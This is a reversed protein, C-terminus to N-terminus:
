RRAGLRCHPCSACGAPNGVDADFHRCQMGIRVIARAAAADRKRRPGRGPDGRGCCHQDADEAARARDGGAAARRGEQEAVVHEDIGAGTDAVQRQGLERAYVMDEDAM